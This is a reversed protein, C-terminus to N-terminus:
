FNGQALQISVPAGRRLVLYCGDPLAISARDTNGGGVQRWGVGFPAGTSYYYQTYGTGNWILVQDATNASTTGLLGTTPVGTYLGSNGLTRGETSPTTGSANVPCLNAVFNNGSELLISTKGMKVEGTVTVTKASGRVLIIFGDSYYFAVSARDTSGGGVKRWGVGFPAGTSYYYQDYGGTATPILLLDATTSNGATLGASNAAGFADSITRLKWITMTSGDAVGAPLADQLIIESGVALTTVIVTNLGQSAGATTIELVHTGAAGNFQNDTITANSLNIHTRDTANVTFAGTFASSPQLSFGVFNNGTQLNLTVFGVPKTTVQANLGVAFAATIATILAIKKM